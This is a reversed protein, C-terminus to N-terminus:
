LINQDYKRNEWIGQGSKWEDLKAEEERKGLEDTSITRPRHVWPLM